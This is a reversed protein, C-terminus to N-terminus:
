CLSCYFILFCFCSSCSRIFCCCSFSLFFFRPVTICFFILILVFFVIFILRCCYLIVIFSLFLITCDCGLGIYYFCLIFYGFDRCGAFVAFISSMAICDGFWCDPQSNEDFRLGVVKRFMSGKEFSDKQIYYNTGIRNIASSPVLMRAILHFPM